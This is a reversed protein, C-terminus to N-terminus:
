VLQVDIIAYEYVDPKDLGYLEICEKVSDVTCRQERWEGNSLTDRYRFTIRVM